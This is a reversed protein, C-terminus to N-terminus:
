SVILSQEQELAFVNLDLIAKRSFDKNILQYSIKELLEKELIRLKQISKKNISLNLRDYQDWINFTITTDQIPVIFPKFFSICPHSSGTLWHISCDESLYSVQSAATRVLGHVCIGGSHDRLIDMMTSPGIEGHFNQLLYKGWGERTFKMPEQFGGLTFCKAFDFSEVDDCYGKDVAYDVIGEKAISYDSRISLGNSINRVGDKLQQAIWWEGATELVWAENPDAILFSNHYTWSSDNEACAGGQGYMELLECILDVARKATSTRELALRVLDMGLLATHGEPEKTWVAENGVALNCENAGMEAGWMWSPKSLLTAHTEEVQPISIYTCDLDNKTSHEKRPTYVIPQSEDYPRNSNKGFVVNGDTTASGLAVFTDCM